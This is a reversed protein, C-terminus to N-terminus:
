FHSGLRPSSPKTPVQNKNVATMPKLPETNTAIDRM